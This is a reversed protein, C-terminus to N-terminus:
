LGMNYDITDQQMSFVINYEEVTSQIQETKEKLVVINKNLKDFMLLAVLFMAGIVALLTVLLNQIKEAKDM